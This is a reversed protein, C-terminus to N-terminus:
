QEIFTRTAIKSNCSVVLDHSRSFLCLLFLIHESSKKKKKSFVLIVGEPGLYTENYLNKKKKQHWTVKKCFELLM